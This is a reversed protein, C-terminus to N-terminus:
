DHRLLSLAPEITYQLKSVNPTWFTLGANGQNDLVRAETSIAAGVATYLSTNFSSATTVVQPFSTAYPTNGRFNVGPSNAVGHLAEAFNRVLDFLTLTHDVDGRFVACVTGGSTVQWEWLPHAEV